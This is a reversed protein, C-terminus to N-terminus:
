PDAVPQLGPPESEAERLLVSYDVGKRSLDTAASKSEALAEQLVREQTVAADYENKANQVAKRVEADLQREANALQSNVKIFDPHKEGYREALRSREQDLQNIHTKLGQIFSNSLVSSISDVNTGAAQIQKWQGEKQIRETRAKTVADNLQTLRAVVINQASDLAGADQRERYEALARESAQVLQQQRAVENTLWTASNEISQM